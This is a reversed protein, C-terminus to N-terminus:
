YDVLVNFSKKVKILFYKKKANRNYKEFTFTEYTNPRVSFTNFNGFYKILVPTM